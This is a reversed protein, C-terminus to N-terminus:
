KNKPFVLTQLVVKRAQFIELLPFNGTPPFFTTVCLCLFNVVFPIFHTCFHSNTNTFFTPTLSTSPHRLVTCDSFRCLILPIHRIALSTEEYFACEPVQTWTTNKATSSVIPSASPLRPCNFFPAFRKFTHKPPLLSFALPYPTGLALLGGLVAHPSTGKTMDKIYRNVDAM